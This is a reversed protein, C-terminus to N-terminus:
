ISISEPLRELIADMSHEVITIKHWRGCTRCHIRCVGSTVVVETILRKQKFAKVHIFPEHTKNDRGVLALLPTTRCVCRLEM